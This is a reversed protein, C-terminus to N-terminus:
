LDVAEHEGHWLPAPRAGGGRAGRERRIREQGLLREIADELANLADVALAQLCLRGLAGDGQLPRLKGSLSIPFRKQGEPVSAPLRVGFASRIIL